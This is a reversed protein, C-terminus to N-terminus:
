PLRLVTFFLWSIIAGFVSMSLGWGMMQSFLKKKDTKPGAQAIFVAGTTSLPSMDTLHGAVVISSVLALLDSSPAGIKALLLPAMPLFAPLIVGSTSAYASILAAFFGVVLTATFPTSMKGMITAFLDMGGINKMLEVLVTVGTVMIITGWPMSKIAAKEDGAKFIILITGILFAGLGVDLKFFIVGLILALIGALTMWQQKNFPEVVVNALSARQGSDKQKFLKLGGFILYAIVAVAVHTVLMNMWLTVGWGEIKMKQLIGAAIVGTPAIPSMAGAQAGNGVVLAMLIPPIGVEEALAMVPVALLAAVSIHGPGISALGFALFFLVIPLIAVNGRVSRIALKTIKELTGNVQAIGFLYTVGALMLFLSTPFSAVLTKVPVGGFFYGIVLALGIAMTGLNTDKWITFVVAVVLAILSIVPLNSALFHAFATDAM